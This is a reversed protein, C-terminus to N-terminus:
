KEDKMIINDDRYNNEIINREILEDKIEIDFNTNIEFNEFGDLPDQNMYDVDDIEVNLSNQNETKIESDISMKKERIDISQTRSKQGNNIQRIKELQNIFNKDNYSQGTNIENNNEIIQINQHKNTEM